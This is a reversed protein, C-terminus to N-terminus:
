GGTHTRTSPARCHSRRPRGTACTPVIRRPRWQPRSSIRRPPHGQRDASPRFGIPSQNRMLGTALIVTFRLCPALKLSSVSRHDSPRKQRRDAGCQSQSQGAPRGAGLLDCQLQMVQQRRHRVRVLVHQHRPRFLHVLVGSAADLDVDVRGHLQAACRRLQDVLDAVANDVDYPRQRAVRRAAEGLGLDELQGEHVLVRHAGVLRQGLEELLVAVLIRVVLHDGHEDM